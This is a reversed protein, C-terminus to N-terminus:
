AIHRWTVRRLIASITQQAVGYESALMTETIGTDRYLHRIESVDGVSLRARGHGQGRQNDYGNKKARDRNNDGRSGLFLHDPNVCLRNDCHHCVCSSRPDRRMSIAYAVRHAKLVRSPSGASFTGYGAM